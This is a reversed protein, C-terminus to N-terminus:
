LLFLKRLWAIFPQAHESQPNFVSQFDVTKLNRAPEDQWALWTFLHAKEEHVKKFPAGIQKASDCASIAYQLVADSDARVLKKLLTELTGVSRNDPMIWVGIRQGRLNVESVFGGEPVMEPLDAFASSFWSNFLKWTEHADDDADLVVGLNKLGTAELHGEVISQQPTKSGLPKITIPENGKPWEIGNGEALEAIAVLDTPGEVLLRNSLSSTM